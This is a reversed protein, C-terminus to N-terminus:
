SDTQRAPKREEKPQGAMVVEARTALARLPKLQAKGDPQRWPSCLADRHPDPDAIRATPAPQGWGTTDKAPGQPAPM